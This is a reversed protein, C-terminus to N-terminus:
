FQKERLGGIQLVPGKNLMCLEYIVIIASLAAGSYGVIPQPYFLTVLAVMIYFAKKIASKFGTYELNVGLTLNGMALTVTFITMVTGAGHIILAPHVFFSLPLILIPHGIKLSYWCIKLFSDKAIGSAVACCPAVPPTVLGFMALYFVAFHTVLLPIGMDLLIPAALTVTLIYAAVTTATMGFLICLGASLLILLVQSNGAIEIIGFSLKQALGTQILVSVIIGICALMNTISAAGQAGARSGKLLNKVFESFLKKNIPRRIAEWVLEMVMFTVIMFFGAVMVDVRFAMLVVMLVVIAAAPPLGSLIEMKTLKVVEASSARTDEISLYQRAYIYVALALCVYFILAPIFGIVIIEWYSKKLYSAMLFAAAGMVPPMVQGGSSAISEIAGAIYGPIKYRKMLPITFTGTGAVNAAGSGSFSGFILSSVVAIQPIGYRYKKFMNYTIKM